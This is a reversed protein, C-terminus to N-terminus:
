KIHIAIVDQPPVTVTMTDANGYPMGSEWVTAKQGPKLKLNKLSGKLPQTYHENFLLVLREDGKKLVLANPYKFTSSSILNDARVGDHFLDEFAAIMRTAEGVYYFLGASCFSACEILAGKHTTAALRVMQLKMEKPYLYFGDSSFLKVNKGQQWYTHFQGFTSHIGTIKEGTQKSLDMSAQLSGGPYTQGPLPISVLDYKGRTEAYAEHDSTNHYYWVTGGIEKVVEYVMTMLQNKQKRKWWKSWQGPYKGIITDDDLKENAPINFMARFDAKCVDCFCYSHLWNPTRYPYNEDNFFLDKGIGYKIFFLYDKKLAAKFQERYKGTANTLCFENHFNKHLPGSKKYHTAQLDPNALVLESTYTQKGAGWLPLNFNVSTFNRAGERNFLKIQFQKLESYPTGVTWRYDAGLIFSNLGSKFSLDAMARFQDASVIGAMFVDYQPFLVKKLKGGNIPPLAGVKIVNVVDTTDGDVVRRFRFDVTENKAFKYGDHRFSLFHRYGSYNRFLKEPLQWNYTYRIYKKGNITIKESKIDKTPYHTYKPGGNYNYDDVRTFGEPIEAILQYNCKGTAKPNYLAHLFFTTEGPSVGWVKVQPGLFSYAHNGYNRSWILNQRFVVKKQNGNWLYGNKAVAPKFDKDNAGPIGVSFIDATEPSNELAFKVGPDNGASEAVIEIRNLGSILSFPYAGDKASLKNGNLTVSLIKANKTDIKFASAPASQELKRLVAQWEMLLDDISDAMVWPDKKVEAEYTAKLRDIIKEAEQWGPLTGYMQKAGIYSDQRNILTQINGRLYWHRTKGNIRHELGKVPRKKPLFHLTGFSHADLATSVTSSWQSKAQSKPGTYNDRRVNLYIVSEKAPDIGLMKLPVRSEIIWRTATKSYATIWEQADDKLPKEHKTSMENYFGRHIGGAGFMLFMYPSDQYTGKRNYEKSLIFNIRDTVPWGDQVRSGEKVLDPASEWMTAAIYLYKSDYGIQFSTQKTVSKTLQKGVQFYKARPINGWVEKELKGDIVPAKDVPQAFTFRDSQNAMNPLPAAILQSLASAIFFLPILAITKKM